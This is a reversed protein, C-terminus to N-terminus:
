KKKLHDLIGQMRKATGSYKCNAIVTECIKIWRNLQAPTVNDKVRYALSLPFQESPIIKVGKEAALLLQNQNGGWFARAIATKALLVKDNTLKM